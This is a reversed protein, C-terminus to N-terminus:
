VFRGLHFSRALLENLILMGQQVWVDREHGSGPLPELHRPTVYLLESRGPIWLAQAASAAKEIKMTLPDVVYYDLQPASSSTDYGLEGALLWKGGASWELSIFPTDCPGLKGPELTLCDNRQIHFHGGPQGRRSLFLDEAKACAAWTGAKAFTDCGNAPPPEDPEAPAPGILREQHTKPDFSWL